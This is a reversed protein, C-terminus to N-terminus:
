INEHNVNRSWVFCYVGFAAFGLGMLILLVMGFPQGQLTKLAQDTGGAKSPDYSIAAWLFLAGVLGIAVGKIIWGVTGLKKAWEAVGAKLDEKVFKRRIGKVIQSIGVAIIALGLTGVLLQGGPASMLTSSATEAGSGSQSTQAGLALRLATVGLVAYVIARAASSIRKRIKESSKRNQYGFLAELIQWIVLAFLGVAFVIMLVNGLPKSVLDKLAGDTSTEGGGGLAVQVCLWGLLLHILGYCVLGLMVLNRYASSRQVKSGADQARDGAQQAKAGTNQMNPRPAQTAM